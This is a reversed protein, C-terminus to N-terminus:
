YNLLLMQVSHLLPSGSGRLEFLVWIFTAHNSCFGRQFRFCTGFELNEMFAKESLLPSLLDPPLSHNAFMSAWTPTAELQRYVKLHRSPM